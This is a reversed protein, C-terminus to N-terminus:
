GTLSRPQHCHECFQSLLGTVECTVSARQRALEIMRETAEDRHSLHFHLIGFKSKAQTAEFDLAPNEALYDSLEQSLDYLLQYWGDGCEVGWCMSSEHKSKHRGRYLHPFAAYLKETLVPDLQM